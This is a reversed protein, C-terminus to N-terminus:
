WQITKFKDILEGRGAAKGNRTVCAADMAKWPIYYCNLDLRADDNVEGVEDTGM